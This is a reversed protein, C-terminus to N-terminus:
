GGEKTRSISYTYEVCPLGRFVADVTRARRMSIRELMRISPANRSDTVAVVWDVGTQDFILKICLSVAESGVGAGQSEPRLTFGIEAMKGGEEVCVGIDGVLGDGGHDAIGIQCWRGPQFLEARSMSELFQAAKEDSEPPWGQYLGVKPDHRYGQFQPLDDRSLRRLVIRRGRLPLADAPKMEM